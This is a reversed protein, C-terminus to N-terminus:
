EAAIRALGVDAYGNVASRYFEEAAAVGSGPTVPVGIDRLSMEAGTLAMMVMVENLDGLHGIRFVRGAVKSLGGGLSVGYRYYARKILEGSDFGDPLCVADFLYHNLWEDQDPGFAPM